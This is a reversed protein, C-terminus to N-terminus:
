VALFLASWGIMPTAVYLMAGELAPLIVNGHIHMIKMDNEENVLAGVRGQSWGCKVESLRM